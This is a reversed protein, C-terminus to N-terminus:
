PIRLTLDFFAAGDNARTMLGVRGPAGLNADEGVLVEAGDLYLRFVSGEVELRLRMLAGVTFSAAADLGGTDLSRFSGAAKRGMIRYGGASDLLVFYFDDPGQYRFVFGLGGDASSRVESALSFDALVPRTPTVKLVLYTGPKRPTATGTGGRIRTSQVLAEQAADFAWASPASQTAAPDDVVDYEALSAATFAGRVVVRAGDTRSQAVDVPIETIADGGAVPPKLFEYLVAFEVERKPAPPPGGSVRVPRPGLGDLSLQLIGLLGLDARDAALVAQTVGAVAGDLGADDAAPVMVSVKAEVRRGLVDGLPAASTGALGGLGTPVIRVPTVLVSPQLGPGPPPPLLSTMATTLQALAEVALADM